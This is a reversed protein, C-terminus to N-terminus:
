QCVYIRDICITYHLFIANITASDVMMKVIEVTDLSEKYQM